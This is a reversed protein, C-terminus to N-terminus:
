IDVGDGWQPQVQRWGQEQLKRWLKRAADRKMHRRAKLLPPAGTLPRGSDVFYMPDASWSKPDWHFRATNATKPDQIWAQKEM